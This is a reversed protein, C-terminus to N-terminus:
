MLGSEKQLFRIYKIIEEIESDSVKGRQPRMVKSKSGNIITNRIQQDSFSESQYTEILFSPAAGNGKLNDGHCIGCVRIYTKQGTMYPEPVNSLPKESCASLALILVALSTFFKKM